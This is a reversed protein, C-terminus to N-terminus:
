SHRYQTPSLGTRATFVHCLRNQGSFGCRRAIESISLNTRKLLAKAEGLRHDELARRLSKGEIQRFRLEALRRSVGLHGVIDAVGIRDCGRASIFGKARRILAAAPLVPTTSTREIVGIPPIFIPKGLNARGKLLADMERAMRFGMRVHGPLISSIPPNSHRVLFEDNDTGLIAMQEPVSIRAATAATLVRLACEDSAAFVAAPKQLSSLFDVLGDHDEYPSSPKSKSAFVTCAVGAQSLTDRFAAGREDNWTEDTMPVFAFSSYSGCKLFTRAALRGIAANDNLIVTTPRNGRNPAVGDVNALVVPLPTQALAETTGNVGPFTAIIGSFGNGAASYITEPRFERDHQVLQIQWNAKTELFKFIGSLVDRGATHYIRVAALIKVPKKQCTNKMSLIIDFNVCFTNRLIVYLM